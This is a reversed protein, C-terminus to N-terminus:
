SSLIWGGPKLFKGEVDHDIDVPGYGPTFTVDLEEDLKGLAELILKEVVAPEGDAIRIQLQAEAEEAIVNGAVGGEMRGINLTTNGYKQSWPLELMDLVYLAKVLMSNANRGLEPYGSHGAKGRAKIRLGVNGKHGSALKLETPEGFIVTEWSLGLDNAARMGDGGIEEGVVFLLAVDGESIAGSGLLLEVARIQTAVSGKADVSGRGWIEAGRLEYQWYPPVTDIHSTVLARTKRTKGSYALINHRAHKTGTASAVLQTEVTFNQQKLYSTLFQDITHENYTISSCDVLSKHLSLLESSPRSPAILPNQPSSSHALVTWSRLLAGMLLKSTRM